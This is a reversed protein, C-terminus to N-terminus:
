GQFPFRQVLLFPAARTEQRYVCIADVPLPAAAFPSLRPELYAAIAAHVADDRISDTLTMHFRFEEMVYPYGWRQLNAEQPESLGRARRQALEDASPPARFADFSRVCDAALAEMTPCPATLGLAQFRGIRRLGVPPADFAPRGAAFSRAAALLAAADTGDALHFPPKLTAHFGYNRPSGTAAALAAASLGPVAPQPLAEGGVPDRGLWGIGFRWLASDAAPAYYIAYREGSPM